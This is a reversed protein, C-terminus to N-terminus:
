MQQDLLAGREALALAPWSVGHCLLDLSICLGVLWLPEAPQGIWVGIGVLLAVVGAMITWARRHSQGTLARALRALGIV